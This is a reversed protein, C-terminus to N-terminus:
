GVIEPGSIFKGYIFYRYPTASLQGFPYCTYLIINEQTANLDYTTTDSANVVKMDVIEYRYEGYEAHILITQGLAASEFDRFFTGTHGAVLITGGQGPIKAGSGAYTGGGQSLQAESDGYLLACNVQTGEIELDGLKRGAYLKGVTDWSVTTPAESSPSVLSSSAQSSISSVSQSQSVSVSDSAASSVPATKKAQMAAFGAALAYGLGVCLLLTISLALIVNRKNQEKM